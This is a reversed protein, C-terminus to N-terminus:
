GKNENDSNSQNNKSTVGKAIAFGSVGSLIPLGAEASITRTLLLISLAFVIFIALVVQGYVTWFENRRELSESHVNSLQKMANNPNLNRHFIEDFFHYFRDLSFSQNFLLRGLYIIGVSIGISVVSIVIISITIIFENNM